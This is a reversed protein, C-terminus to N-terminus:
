ARIRAVTAQPEDWVQDASVRLVRLGLRELEATKRYDRAFARPSSHSAYGDLEVALRRDRWM